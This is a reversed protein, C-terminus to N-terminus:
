PLDKPIAALIISKRPEGIMGIASAMKALPTDYDSGRDAMAKDLTARDIKLSTALDGYMTALEDVGYVHEEEGSSNYLVNMRATPSLDGYLKDIRERTKRFEEPDFEGKEKQRGWRENAKSVVKFGLTGSDAKDDVIREKFRIQELFKLQNLDFATDANAEFIQHVLDNRYQTLSTAKYLTGVDVPKDLFDSGSGWQNDMKIAGSKPDIDHITVVHAGGSQGNDSAVQRFPEVATDVKLIVPLEGRQKLDLLLNKFEEKNSFTKINGEKAFFESSHGIYITQDSEGAILNHAKVIEPGGFGDFEVVNGEKDIVREGTDKGGSSPVKIYKKGDGALVLNAAVNNFLQTAYSRKGDLPPNWLAEADPSLAERSLNVTSGDTAEYSGNMFVDSVLAAARSPQRAYIRVEANSVNCTKNWGQDISTPSAAQSLVQGALVVGKEHSLTSDPIDTLLTNLSKYTGSIESRDIHSGEVRNEFRIMDAKFKALLLPDKINTEALELVAKRDARLAPDDLFSEKEGGKGNELDIRGDPYETLKFNQEPRVGGASTVLNDGAAFGAGRNQVMFFRTGDPNYADKMTEKVLRGGPLEEIHSGDPKLVSKLGNRMTTVTGDSDRFVDDNESFRYHQRGDAFEESFSGSSWFTKKSLESSIYLNGGEDVGPLKIDAAEGAEGAKFGPNAEQLALSFTRLQDQSLGSGLVKEAIAAVDEHAEARYDAPERASLALRSRDIPDDVAYIDDQALDLTTTTADTRDAGKQTGAPQTQSLLERIEPHASSLRSPPEEITTREPAKDPAKDIGSSM